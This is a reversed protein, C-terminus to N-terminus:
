WGNRLAWKQAMIEIRRDAAEEEFNLLRVKLDRGGAYGGCRSNSMIVRHCPLIILFPNHRLTRALGRRHVKKTLKDGLKENILEATESYTCTQGPPILFPLAKLIAIQDPTGRTFKLRLSEYDFDETAFPDRRYRELFMCVRAIGATMANDSGPKNIEKQSPSAISVSTICDEDDSTILILDNLLYSPM